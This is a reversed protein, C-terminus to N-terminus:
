GIQEMERYNNRIFFDERIKAIDSKIEDTYEFYNYGFKFRNKKEKFVMFAQKLSKHADILAGMAKKEYELIDFDKSKSSELDKNMQEINSQQSQNEELLQKNKERLIEAEHKTSEYDEPAKIVEREVIKVPKNREAELEASLDQIEQLVDESPIKGRLDEIQKNLNTITEKQSKFNEKIKKAEQETLKVKEQAQSIQQYIAQQSEADLQAFQYAVQQSIDKNDMMKSLEPILDSLTRIRKVTTESMNLERGLQKVTFCNPAIYEKGHIANFGKPNGEKIGKIEYLRKIAKAMESASLQRARINSEILKLEHDNVDEVDIVHVPIDQIGLEICARFRQHGSIIVNDRSIVIPQIIGHTVISKKLDDFEAGTLDNFYATNKQYSTLESIKM